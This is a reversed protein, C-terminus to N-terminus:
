KLVEKLLNKKAKEWLSIMTTDKKKKAEALRKEIRKLDKLITM